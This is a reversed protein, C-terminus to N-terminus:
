RYVTKINGGSVCNLNRNLVYISTFSWLCHGFGQGFFKQTIIQTPLHYRCIGYFLVSSEGERERANDFHLIISRRGGGGEGTGVWISFQSLCFACIRVKTYTVNPWNHFCFLILILRVFYTQPIELPSLM